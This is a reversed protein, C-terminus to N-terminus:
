RGKTYVSQGFADRAKVSAGAAILATVATTHRQRCAWMLPTLLTPTGNPSKRQDATDVSAGDALAAAIGGLDGAEASSLLRANASPM